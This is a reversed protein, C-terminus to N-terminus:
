FSGWRLCNAIQVNDVHLQTWPGAGPATRPNGIYLSHPMLSSDAAGVRHGDVFLMYHQGQQLTLMVSHWTTDGPTGKWLVQGGLLSVDFRYISRMPDVVHHISLIDEWGPPLGLEEPVREGDYPVSNLAITTGHASIDSFRFHV